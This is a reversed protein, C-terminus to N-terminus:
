FWGDLWFRPRYSGGGDKPPQSASTVSMREWDQWTTTALWILGFLLAAAVIVSGHRLVAPMPQPPRAPWCSSALLAAALVVWLQAVPMVLNGSFGADILLSVCALWAGLALPPDGVHNSQLVKYASHMARFVAVLLLLLAPLGLEAAVLLYMNHPHAGKLNPEHAFHMPGIGLWPHEAIHELAIRWLYFRSHDNSPSAYANVSDATSLGQVKPLFGFILWYFLGGAVAALLMNFAIQRGRKEMLFAGLFSVLALSLLTARGLTLVLLTWNLVLAVAALMRWLPRLSASAIAAALLPMSVTQVHNFFRPNDFGVILRWNDVGVGDLMALVTVLILVLSYSAAGAVVCTLTLEPGIDRIATALSRTVAMLGAILMLERLAM